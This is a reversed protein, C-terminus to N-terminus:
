RTYKRIIEWKGNDNRRLIDGVRAVWGNTVHHNLEVVLGESTKIVSHVCELNWLDNINKGTIKIEQMMKKTYFLCRM